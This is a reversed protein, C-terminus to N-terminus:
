QLRMPLTSRAKPRVNRLIVVTEIKCVRVTSHEHFCQITMPNHAFNFAVTQRIVDPGAGIPVLARLLEFRKCAAFGVSFFLAGNVNFM